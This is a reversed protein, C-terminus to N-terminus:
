GMTGASELQLCGAWWRNETLEEQLVVGYREATQLIRSRDRNLVGSIIMAGDRALKEVFIPLLGAVVNLNINAIVLDFGREDILEISGRRIDIRNEVKNIYINELANEQSWPDIDFAIASAAGLKVAAIALIGTGTGADMVDDGPDVVSPLMRLILRTSEHYGTGFSMKPDIELLILDRHKTPVECWTPKILFPPVAVARITEEWKRNWNQDAIVQEEVVTPLGHGALWLGITERAVDNWRSSPIYAILHRDHQEFSEFDLDALEAILIEQHADPVSIKVAVTSVIDFNPRGM